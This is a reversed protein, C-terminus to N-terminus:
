FNGDLFLGVRSIDHRRDRVIRSGVPTLGREGTYLTRERHQDYSLMNAAELRIKIGFWRTTEIVTNVATGESYVDLENVKYLPRKARMGM